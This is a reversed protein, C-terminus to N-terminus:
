TRCSYTNMKPPFICRVLSDTVLPFQENIYQHLRLFNDYEIDSENEESITRIKIANALREPIQTRELAVAVYDFNKSPKTELTFTNFLVVVVFLLLFLGVVAFIKKM